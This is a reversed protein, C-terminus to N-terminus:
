KVECLQAPGVTFTIVRESFGLDGQTFRDTTNM